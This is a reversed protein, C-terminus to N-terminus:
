LEPGMRRKAEVIVELKNLFGGGDSGHVTICACSSFRKKQM